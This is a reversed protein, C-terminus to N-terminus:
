GQSTFFPTSGTSSPGSNPNVGFSNNGLSMTLGNSNNKIANENNNPVSPNANVNEPKPIMPDVSGPRKKEMWEVTAKDFLDALRKEDRCLERFEQFLRETQELNNTNNTKDNSGGSNGSNKTNSKAPQEPSNPRPSSIQTKQLNGNNGQEQLSSLGNNSNPVGPTGSSLDIRNLALSNVMLVFEGDDLVQAICRGSKHVYQFYKYSPKGWSFEVDMRETLATSIPGTDHFYDCKRLLYKHYYLPDDALAEASINIESSQSLSDETGAPKSNSSSNQSPTTPSSPSRLPSSSALLTSGPLQNPDKSSSTQDEIDMTLRKLEPGDEALKQEKSLQIQTRHQLVQIQHQKERVITAPDIAMSQKFLSCFPNSKPLQTIEELPVQALRLGYRAIMKHIYTLMDDICKPMTNLWEVRLQFCNEPNHIQDIHITLVEPKSSRTDSNGTDVKYWMSRSLMVKPKLHRTPDSNKATTSNSTFQLNGTSSESQDTEQIGQLGPSSNKSQGMFAPSHSNSNNGSENANNNSEQAGGTRNQTNGGRTRGDSALDKLSTSSQVHSKYKLSVPDNSYSPVQKKFANPSFISGLARQEDYEPALQYFYHGNLFSHRDEVHHFLGQVMLRNGYDVAEEVTKIDIFNGLLWLVLDTGIFCHYHIKLHWRRNMFRIGTKSLLESALQSIKISRTFRESPQSFLSNKRLSFAGFDQHNPHGDKRIVQDYPGVNDYLNLLYTSLEGTYFRIEPIWADDVKIQTNNSSRIEDPTYYKGKQFFASLEQLGELRVEEATLREKRGDSTHSTNDVVDVPILVCRIRYLRADDLINVDYGNLLQDIKNWNYTPPLDFIRVSTPTYADEYRTKVLPYYNQEGKSALRSGYDSQSAMETLTLGPVDLQNLKKTYLRVTISNGSESEFSIRHIQNGLSMYIRKGTVDKQMIEFVSDPNGSFHESEVYSVRDRAVIQFGMSIRVAVMENFLESMSKFEASGTLLFSNYVQTTYDNEFQRLSPFRSSLLPLAAPSTLSQWKVTHRKVKQPYAYQWRGYNSIDVMKHQPVNSPNEITMWMSHEEEKEYNEFGLQRASRKPIHKNFLNSPNAPVHINTNPGLQSTGNIRNNTDANTSTFENSNTRDLNNSTVDQVNPFSVVSNLRSLGMSKGHPEATTMSQTRSLPPMFREFNPGMGKRKSFKDIPQNKRVEQNLLNQLYDPIQPIFAPKQLSSAKASNGGNALAGSNLGPLEQGGPEKGANIGPQRNIVSSIKGPVLATSSNGLSPPVTAQPAPSRLQTLGSGLPVESVAAIGSNATIVTTSIAPKSFPGTTPVKNNSLNSGTNGTPTINNSFNGAFHEYVNTRSDNRADLHLNQNASIMHINSLADPNATLHSDPHSNLRTSSNCKSMQLLNNAVNPSNIAIPATFKNNNLVLQPLPQVASVDSADDDIRHSAIATGLNPAKNQYRHNDTVTYNSNITRTDEERHYFSRLTSISSMKALFGTKREANHDKSVVTKITSIASLIPTNIASSSSHSISESNTKLTQLLSSLTSQPKPKIIEGMVTGGVTPPYGMSSSGTEETTPETTLLSSDVLSNTQFITQVIPSIEKPSEMMRPASMMNTYGEDVVEIKQKVVGFANRDYDDMIAEPPRSTTASPLYDIMISSAENEMVGMMQIEYLKCRPAWQVCHRENSSWFSIDLWSPVCHKVQGDRVYRFLPTVHLPPRSLCILDVGIELNTLKLSTQYLLDYDVDFLGTGPTVILAQVGTRRLDRDRFKGSVLQTTINIAQLINGKIAPLIKGVIKGNDQLLVDKEFRAFEYRLKEMIEGWNNIDIQDVVVRFYDRTNRAIHGHQLNDNNGSIDVSTFLIITVVHHTDQKKWKKFVEPFFSNIMKQFVIHGQEEFHWMESSMQIFFVLRSSESRYVIRTNHGIYGSFVRKGDRYIENITVRVVNCHMITEDRFCCKGTLESSIRWM